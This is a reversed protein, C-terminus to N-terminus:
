FMISSGGGWQIQHASPSGPVITISGGWQIQHASPSGPVIISSGGGWQIRDPAGGGVWIRAVGLAHQSVDISHASDTHQSM